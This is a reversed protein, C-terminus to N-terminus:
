DDDVDWDDKITLVLKGILKKKYFIRYVGNDGFISRLGKFDINFFDRVRKVDRKSLPRRRQIKRKM